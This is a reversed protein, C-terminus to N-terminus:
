QSKMAEMESLYRNVEEQKAHLQEKITARLEKFSALEAKYNVNDREMVVM